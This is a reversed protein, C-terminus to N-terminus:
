CYRLNAVCHIACLALKNSVEFMVGYLLPSSKNGGEREVTLSVPVTSSNGETSSNGGALVGTLCTALAVSTALGACKVSESKM